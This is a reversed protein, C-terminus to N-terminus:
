PIKVRYYRQSGKFDVLRCSIILFFHSKSTVRLAIITHFNRLIAKHANETARRATRVTIGICAWHFVFVDLILEVNSILVSCSIISSM